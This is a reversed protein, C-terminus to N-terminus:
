FAGSNAGQGLHTLASALSNHIHKAVERSAAPADHSLIAHLIAQHESVSQLLREPNRYAIHRFRRAQQWLSELARVLMENRSTTAILRDMTQTLADYEQLSGKKIWPSGNELRQLLEQFEDPLVQQAAALEAALAELAIRMQYVEVITKASIDTVFAGRGPIIRVLEERSLLRLAERVPTRSVSLKEALEEEFLPAGPQLDWRIISDRLAVYVRETATNTRSM